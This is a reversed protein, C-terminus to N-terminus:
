QLSHVSTGIPATSADSPIVTVLIYHAIGAAPGDYRKEANYDPDSCGAKRRLRRRRGMAAHREVKADIRRIHDRITPTIVCLM